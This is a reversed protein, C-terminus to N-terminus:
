ASRAVGASASEFFPRVAAVLSELEALAKDPAIGLEVVTAARTFAVRADAELRVL